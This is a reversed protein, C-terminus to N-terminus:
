DRISFANKTNDLLQLVKDVDNLSHTTPTDIVDYVTNNVDRLMKEFDVVIKIVNDSDVAVTIPANLTIVNYGENTGTHLSYSFDLEDNYLGDGNMDFDGEVKSFIYSNWATWFDQTLPEGANYDGQTESRNLENNVGFGFRIGSYQGVPISEYARATGKRALDETDKDTLNILEVEALETIDGTGDKLLALDTILFQFRKVNFTNGLEPYSYDESFIVLPSNQYEAVFNIEVTATKDEDIVPDPKCSVLLLITLAFTSLLINKM